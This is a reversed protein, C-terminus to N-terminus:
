NFFGGGIEVLFLILFLRFGPFYRTSLIGGFSFFLPAHWFCPRLFLLYPTTRPLSLFFGVDFFPRINDYDAACITSGGFILFHPSGLFQRRAPPSLFFRFVFWCPCRFRWFFFFFFIFFFPFPKRPVCADVFKFLVWRTHPLFSPLLPGHLPCIFIAFLEAWHPFNVHPPLTFFFELLSAVCTHM